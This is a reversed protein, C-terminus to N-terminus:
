HAPLIEWEWSSGHTGRDSRGKEPRNAVAVAIMEAKVRAREGNRFDRLAKVRVRVAPCRRRWYHSVTPLVVDIVTGSPLPFLPPPTHRRRRRRPM